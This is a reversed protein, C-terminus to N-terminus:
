FSTAVGFHIKSQRFLIPNGQQAGLAYYLSFIGVRTEFSIGAGFGYPLDSAYSEKIRQETYAGNWFLALFSNREFLFRYEILLIGYLSATLSEEDFGRLSNLGGLRFLENGFLMPNWLGAGSVGALLTHRRFLPIFGTFNLHAEIQGSSLDLSDYLAANIHPNRRLTKSGGSVNALLIYGKRPNYRYDTQEIYCSIGALNKRVDAYDPLVSVNELGSANIIDSSFITASVRLYNGGNFLYRLGIDHNLTLYSTDKKYLKFEYDLGLATSLLYPYSLQVNLDQTGRTLSRWNLSILEGQAFSNVLRLKVDGNILVKGPVENNPLVGLIGSFSSAKRKNLYLYVRAKNDIFEVDPAKEMRIFPQDGLRKMIKQFDSENYAQGPRIGSCRYIFNRSIRINGKRILSDIAVYPGPEIHLSARIRGEEVSARTLSTGAFPYGHNECWVLPENLLQRYRDPTFPQPRQRRQTFDDIRPPLTNNVTDHVLELTYAPGCHLWATLRLSDGSTSDHGAELYAKDRLFQVIDAIEQAREEPKTFQKKYRIRPAKDNFNVRLELRQQGSALFGTLLLFSLLFARVIPMM